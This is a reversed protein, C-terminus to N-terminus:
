RSGTSAPRVWEQTTHAMDAHEQLTPLTRRAYDRLEPDEGNRAYRRFMSVAEVHDEVMARMYARDFSEGSRRELEAALMRHEPDPSDPLRWGKESALGQLEELARSHDTVMRDAFTRVRPEYARAGAVRSMEVEAISARAARTAFAPAARGERENRPFTACSTTLLVAVLVACRMKM